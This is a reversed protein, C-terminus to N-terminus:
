QTTTPETTLEAFTAFDTHCDTCLTTRDKHHDDYTDNNDIARQVAQRSADEQWSHSVTRKDPDLTTKCRHCENDTDPSDGLFVHYDAHCSPCLLCGKSFYDNFSFSETSPTDDTKPPNTDWNHRFFQDNFSIPSNCRSCSADTM